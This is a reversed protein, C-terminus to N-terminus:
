VLATLTILISVELVEVLAGVTDGTCGGLRAVMQRRMFWFVAACVLLVSSGSLPAIVVLSIAVAAVLRWAVSRSFHNALAEGLGGARVYPTTLFLAIAGLRGCVPVLVLGIVSSTELLQHLAAVKLLLLMVLTVVGVPGCTPDKMIELTRAQNGFGGIWADASDALGDLHLAGTIAVWFTVVLTATLLTPLLPEALQVVVWLLGGILLGVLPYWLLSRGIDADEIQEEGRIPLSTLFQIALLLPRLYRNKM